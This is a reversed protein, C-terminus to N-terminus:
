RDDGVVARALLLLTPRTNLAPDAVVRELLADLVRGLEPGPELGLEEILDTGDIALDRRDLV